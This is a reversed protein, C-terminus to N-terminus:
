DIPRFRDEERSRQVPAAVRKELRASVTDGPRVERGVPADKFGALRFTFRRM